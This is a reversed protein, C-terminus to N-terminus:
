RSRAAVEDILNAVLGTWGTQHSAGLGIGAWNDDADGGHFYEYFLVCDRWEPRQFLETEGYVPRKNTKPDKRFINILRNSLDIAVDELTRTKSPNNPDAVVGTGGFMKDFKYLSQILLYNMPFWIPGRWNSNGGMLKVINSEAPEYDIRLQVTSNDPRTLSIDPEKLHLKSLSRVGFQSLFQEPDLIRDLISRLRDKDVVSVVGQVSADEQEMFIQPPNEGLLEPRNKKFWGVMGQISNFSEPDGLDQGIEEAAFLPVLGVSSFAHLRGFKNACDFFFKKDPDWLGDNGIRNMSDCIYIFHLLYKRVLDRYGPEKESLESAIKVMNLCFMAMWATGDAQEIDNGDPDKSIVRINDMGLFGGEFVNNGQNDVKNVWWTFNMNLRNFVRELFDRDATGYLEKEKQYVSWTAWAHVPPNINSFDWEYAAIQGNPHMYWEMVMLLLQHKAFEPDIIALTTTHFALDWAAFWPYEWKDPMSLIDKCYLHAWPLMSPSGKPKPRREEEEANALWDNSVLYYLQKNWLMGSFAQRQINHLDGADPKGDKPYACVANYFADTEGIRDNFDKDATAFPDTTKKNTLRLEVISTNGSKGASLELKYVAAAKTGEQKSVPCGQVGRIYKDIGDKKGDENYTFVIEKTDKAYLWMTSLRKGDAEAAAEITAPEDNLRSLKVTIANQTEIATNRFWLTPLLYLTTKVPGRNAATIRIRIDESSVKAYEILVDVYKDEDFAHTDVLEYELDGKSYRNNFLDEYPYKYPYKYLYKMYSHTPTNDLYFYYEKVDEGHNGESNTLGYLREKICPDAGNWMSVAFCLFQHDDSIGAIGDEGWRYAHGLAQDREFYNWSNCINKSERVTGWQRESLYCGWKRWNKEQNANPNAIYEMYENIRKREQTKAIEERKKAYYADTKTSSM